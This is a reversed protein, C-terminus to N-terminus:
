NGLVYAQVVGRHTQLPNKPPEYTMWWNENSHNSASAIGNETQKLGEPLALSFTEM